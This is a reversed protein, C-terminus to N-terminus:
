GMLDHIARLQAIYLLEFAPNFEYVIGAFKHSIIGAESECIRFAPGGSMGGISTPEPEYGQRIWEVREFQCVLYHERSSTVPTAGCGFSGFNFEAARPRLRLDGPFGGFAIGAGEPVPVPEGDGIEAFAEGIGVSGDTIEDAQAATLGIVAVDPTESEGVVQELPEFRCNGIQFFARDSEARKTRYGDLVHHCTIAFRENDRAVLSATGNNVTLQEGARPWIGFFAPKCFRLPFRALELGFPGALLIRADEPTM